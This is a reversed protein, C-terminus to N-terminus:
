VGGHSDSVGALEQHSRTLNGFDTANGGTQLPWYDITNVFSPGGGARIGRTGNSAGACNGRAETLDGSDISNGTSMIQVYHIHNSYAPAFYGGASYARTRSSINGMSGSYGGTFMDGFDIANGLTAITVYDITTNSSAGGFIM